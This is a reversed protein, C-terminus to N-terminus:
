PDKKPQSSHHRAEFIKAMMMSLLLPHDGVAQTSEKDDLALQYQRGM